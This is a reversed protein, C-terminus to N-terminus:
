WQGGLYDTQILMRRVIRSFVPAAVEGGTHKEGHIRNVTVVVLYQPNEAPFVGMFLASFFNPYYGSGDERAIQGTGTKGAIAMGEIKASLATGKESVVKEMMHLVRQSATSLFVRRQRLDGWGYVLVPDAYMGGSAVTALALALQLTSVGIEQGISTMYKSLGSWQSLPRLIGSARGPLPVMPMTGFGLNTLTQYWASVQFREAVQVMGVNCSKQIIEALRVQGHAFGDKIRYGYVETGGGCFFVEDQRVLQQELAFTSAFVKMVSGPEYVMSLAYNVLTRDNITSFVNPNYSPWDVMALIERGQIKLVLVTGYEAQAETVGKILEELAIRSLLPDLTTYINKGEGLEKDFFLELGAMGQNDISVHGVVKAIELFPYYRGQQKLFGWSDHPWKGEYQQLLTEIKQRQSFSLRRKLYVFDKGGALPALDEQTFVGELNSLKGVLWQRMEESFRSPRVYFDYYEVNVVLSNTYRDFIMGRPM